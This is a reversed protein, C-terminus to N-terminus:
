NLVRCVYLIAKKEAAFKRLFLAVAHFVDPYGRKM